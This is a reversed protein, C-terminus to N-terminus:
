VIGAKDILGALQAFEASEAIDSQTGGAPNSGAGGGGSPTVERADSMDNVQPKTAIIPSQAPVQGRIQRQAARSLDAVPMGM